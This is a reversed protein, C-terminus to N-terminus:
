DDWGESIMWQTLLVYAVAAVVAIIERVPIVMSSFLGNM